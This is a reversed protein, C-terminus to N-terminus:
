RRDDDERMAWSTVSSRGAGATQAFGRPQLFQVWFARQTTVILPFGDIKSDKIVSPTLPPKLAASRTTETIKTRDKPMEPDM